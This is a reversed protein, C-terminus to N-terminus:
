LRKQLIFTRPIGQLDKRIEILTWIREDILREVAKSQGFGIEFILHGGDLLFAPAQEMLTRIHSLGDDGSVLASLPEHDRVESQLGAIEGAAVYPPNSVIVSFEEDPAFASFLDSEVLTLRDNVGHMQANTSAVALAKDSIDAAVARANPLEHLLSIVICGSGTGLDAILAPDNAKLLELAAEVIIETEPRPILVDPTVSFDLKFFEQHGTIYQLPEHNARRSVLQRFDILQDGTLFDEGHAIVFTRDRGLLHSLLSTAEMRADIIGAAGFHLAAEALAERFSTVSGNKSMTLDYIVSRMLISLFRGCTPLTAAIDPV